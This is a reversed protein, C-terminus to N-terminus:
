IAKFFFLCVQGLGLGVLVSSDKLGNPGDLLERIEPRFFESIDSFLCAGTDKAIVMLEAQSAAEWEIMHFLKPMPLTTEDLNLRRRLAMRNCCAATHPCEIGSYSTSMTDSECKLQEVLTQLADEGFEPDSSLFDLADDHWALGEVLNTVMRKNPRAVAALFANSDKDLSKDLAPAAAAAASAPPASASVAQSPQHHQKQKLQGHEPQPEPAKTPQMAAPLTPQQSPSPSPSLTLQQPPEPESHKNSEKTNTSPKAININTTSETVTAATAAATATAYQEQQQYTPPKEPKSKSASGVDSDISSSTPAPAVAEAEAKAQSHAMDPMDPQKAQKPQPLATTMQQPEPELSRTAEPTAISAISNSAAAAAASISQSQEHQQEEEEQHHHDEVAMSVTTDKTGETRAVPPPQQAPLPSTAEQGQGKAAAAAPAIHQGAEMPLAAANSQTQEPQPQTATVQKPEHSATTTTELVATSNSAAAAFTAQSQSEEHQEQQQLQQEAQHGEAVGTTDKTEKTNKTVAATPKAQFTAEAEKAEAATTTICPGPEKPLTAAASTATGTTNAAKTSEELEHGHQQMDQHTAQAMPVAAAAPQELQELQKIHSAPAPAPAPVATDAIDAAKTETAAVLLMDSQSTPKAMPVPVAKTQTDQPENKIHGTSASTAQSQEPQLPAETKMEHTKGDLQRKLSEAISDTESVNDDGEDEDEPEDQVQDQDHDAPAAPPVPPQQQEESGVSGSVPFYSPRWMTVLTDCKKPKRFGPPPKISNPKPKADSKTWLAWGEQWSACISLNGSAALM